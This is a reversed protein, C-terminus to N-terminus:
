VERNTPLTLHTYSVPLPNRHYLKVMLQKLDQMLAQQHLKIVEDIDSKAIRLLDTNPIGGALVINKDRTQQCASLSFFLLLFFYKYLRM